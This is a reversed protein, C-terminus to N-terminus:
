EVIQKEIFRTIGPCIYKIFSNIIICILKHINLALFPYYLDIMGKGADM